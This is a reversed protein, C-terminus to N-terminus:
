QKNSQEGGAIKANNTTTASKGRKGRLTGQGTENGPRTHGQRTNNKWRKKSRGRFTPASTTRKGKSIKKLGQRGRKGKVLVVCQLRDGADELNLGKKKEFEGM